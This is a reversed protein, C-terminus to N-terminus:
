EAAAYGLINEFIRSPDQQSPRHGLTVTVQQNTTEPILEALTRGSIELGVANQLFETLRFLADPTLYFDDRLERQNWNDPLDAPDIDDGPSILRYRFRCYPTGRQASKDFEHGVIVAIYTGAPRPKPREVTDAPTALIANFDASM